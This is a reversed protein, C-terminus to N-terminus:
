EIEEGGSRSKESIDHQCLKIFFKIVILHVVKISVIVFYIHVGYGRKRDCMFVSLVLLSASVSSRYVGLKLASSYITFFIFNPNFFILRWRAAM